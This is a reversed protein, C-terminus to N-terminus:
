RAVNTETPARFNLILQAVSIQIKQWEPLLGRRYSVTVKAALPPPLFFYHSCPAADHNVNSCKIYTDVQGNITRHVFLDRDNYDTSEPRSRTKPDIGVPSYTEMGHTKKPLIQFQFKLNEKNIDNVSRELFLGDGFHSGTTIGVDIWQTKYISSSAYDKEQEPGSRGAMDPFRVKFGFSNLKSQYTRDPIPGKRKEGWGPDGDYEVFNAFHRPISVPMGGLDGIVDRQSYRAALEKTEQTGTPQLSVWLLAAAILCALVALVAVKVGGTQNGFRKM